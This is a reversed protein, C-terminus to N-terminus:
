SPICSLFVLDPSPFDSFYLLPTCLLLSLWLYQQSFPKLFLSTPFYSAEWLDVTSGSPSRPLNIRFRDTLKRPLTLTPNQVRCELM